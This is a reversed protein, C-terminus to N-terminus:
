RSRRPQLLFAMAPMRRDRHSARSATVSVTPIAPMYEEEYEPDPEDLECLRDLSAEREEPTVPDRDLWALDGDWGSDASDPMAAMASMREFLITRRVYYRLYTPYDLFYRILHLNCVSQRTHNILSAAM